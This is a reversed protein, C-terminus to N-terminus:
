NFKFLQYNRVNIKESGRKKLVAERIETERVTMDM